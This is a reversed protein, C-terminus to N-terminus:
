PKPVASTLPSGAVVPKHPFSNKSSLTAALIRMELIIERLAPPTIAQERDSMAEAPQNHVEIMVGDAGCAIAALSMPKVLEPRGTGHSPDVIVPLQCMQKVAAVSSLDLTNRTHTEFTRIGRECLIVQLNGELMIYEASSLWEGVTASMSRKLLVPRGARGVEKLLDYNYMNRAGIQFIDIYPESEAVQHPAMVESVVPLGTAARAVALFKMGESGLGQFDYPSTRPKFAGGRLINAGAEKVQHALHVIHAESEVSCPGGIFVPEAGGIVVGNSLRICASAKKLTLSLQCDVRIAKEVGPLQTFVHSAVTSVDDLIVIQVSNQTRVPQHALGLAQLRQSATEIDQATVGRGFVLIV